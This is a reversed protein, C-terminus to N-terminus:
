IYIDTKSFLNSIEREASSCHDSAHIINFNTASAYDGRITGPAAETVKTKGIMLRSLQIVDNGEWIMAFVTGSTIFHVLEDFFPKDKHDIYHQEAQERTLLMLKAAGLKFGKHEFRSVVNGILGRQVGDPKIMILTREM